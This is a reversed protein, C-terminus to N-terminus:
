RRARDFFDVIKRVNEPDRAIIATHDGGAIEVYEHRMGLAKMKEVWQRTVNVDVLNDNDGQVVIVPVSKIAELADPSTYIAPAVPALAAFLRPNKMAIHWTGGGGMSHGFLYIRAPDITFEGRVIGLVNMVDKYSLDGLNAPDNAADGRSSARGDGRSGYWGRSNYGMPAVVIYGRAEALDTLGQYRIVRDPSSGLGHLAVILPTPRGKTYGTPVYLSYEMPQGAEKFDYTRAQIREFTASTPAPATATQAWAPVALAALVLIALSMRLSRIVM